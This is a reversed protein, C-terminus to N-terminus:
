RPLVFRTQRSLPSKQRRVGKAVTANRGLDSTLWHVILSTETLPRTRVILGTAREDM